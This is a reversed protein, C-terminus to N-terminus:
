KLCLYMYMLTYFVSISCGICSNHLNYWYTLRYSDLIIKIRFVLIDQYQLMFVYVVSCIKLLLCADCAYYGKNLNNVTRFVDAGSLLYVCVCVCASFACMCMNIM